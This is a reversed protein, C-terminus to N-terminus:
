DLCHREMQLPRVRLTRMCILVPPWWAPRLTQMLRVGSLAMGNGSAMRLTRMCILVQPWWAPRFPQMLRVGPLATGNGSAMRLTRMYLNVLTTSGSTTQLESCWLNGDRYVRQERHFIRRCVMACDGRFRDETDLYKPCPRVGLLRKSRIFWGMGDRHLRQERHLLRRCSRASDGRFRGETDLYWIGVAPITSGSTKQIQQVM